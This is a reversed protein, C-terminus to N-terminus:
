CKEEKNLIKELDNAYLVEYKMLYDAIDQLSDINSGLLNVIKDWAHRSTSEIEEKDGIINNDGPFQSYDVLGSKTSYKVYTVLIKTAEMIDNSCGISVKSEDHMLLYEAARGAYLIMVKTYLDSLSFLKKDDITNSVTFGGVNSTTELISVKSVAENTLLKTALAHGAEHWAVIKREEDSRTKNKKVSGKTITQTYALEIMDNTLVTKNDKIMILSAENLITSIASFTLGSFSQALNEICISEDIKKNNLEMNILDIRDQLEPYPVVFKRDFRGPRLVAPDISEPHNTAALVLVPTNDTSFGDMENLIATVTKADDRLAGSNGYSRKSSISDIEDIFIICPANDRAKKFIDKVNKAGLGAFIGGVNSASLPIFNMGCEGALAKALLTKGNGPDGELLIGRPLRVSIDSYKDNNKMINVINLLDDKLENMGVVNSFNIDPVECIAYSKDSSMQGFFVRGMILLFSLEMLLVFFSVFFDFTIGDKKKVKVDNKLLYEKFYPTGPNDTYYETDKKDKLNFIVRDGDLTVEEVKGNSVYERFKNYSVTKDDDIKKLQASIFSSTTMCIVIVACLVVPNKSLKKFVEKIKNM